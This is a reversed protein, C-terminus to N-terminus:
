AALAGTALWGAFDPGLRELAAAEYAASEEATLVVKWRGNVGRNISPEAGGDFIAGGLPAVHDAHGKM